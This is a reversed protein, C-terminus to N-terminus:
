FLKSKEIQQESVSESAKDLPGIMNDRLEARTLLPTMDELPMSILTGDPQPLAVAKPWLVDDPKVCIECLFPGPQSLADRVVRRLESLDEVRSSPIGIAACVAQTDPVTLGSNAGTGVSRGSFYNNQTARISAYGGNNIIFIRVPLKQGKITSLEQLNMQLSGDSEIGVFKKGHLAFGAGIMAPIGFGMSGLGTTNFIRQGTKNQFATYFIEVALGSSGTVILTDEPIEESLVRVADYHDIIGSTQVPQGEGAPYRKKWDQCRARWTEWEPTDGLSRRQKVSKLLAELFVSADACVAQEIPMDFKALESADIDVIVKKANRGFRAPNYATVVNDLRAGISILLDCNQVAFNPPRLAVVGPRGVSLPHTSAILDMATWTTVVPVNLTEYLERLLDAGGALRVGHGAMILPRKAQVILDTIAEIQAAFDTATAIPEIKPTFGKLTQPDIMSNQVDLPMDLWVPGGRGTKALHLAKELHFLIDKPEMVTVAYKTVSKVMEVVNVEQPGRQRVGSNGVLDARKVQGSLILLPISDLWAGVVGTIANTSGPGTTVLAVGLGNIRSYAEAAIASAQEHHNPVFELDPNQGLADVLYMAGGGPVLFVTKVGQKAVFSFVFDAVRVKSTM